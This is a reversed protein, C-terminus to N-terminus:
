KKGGRLKFFVPDGVVAPAVLRKSTGLIMWNNTDPIFLAPQWLGDQKVQIWYYGRLRSPKSTKM